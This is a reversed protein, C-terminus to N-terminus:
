KTTTPQAHGWGKKKEERTIEAGKRRYESLEPHDDPDDLGEMTSVGRRAKIVRRALAPTAWPHGGKPRNCHNNDM